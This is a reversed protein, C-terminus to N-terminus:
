GRRAHTQREGRTVTMFLMLIVISTALPILTDPEAIVAGPSVLEATVTGGAINAFGPTSYLFSGPVTGGIFAEACWENTMPTVSCVGASNSNGFIALTLNGDADFTLRGTNATTQDYNIGNWTFNLATMLNTGDNM